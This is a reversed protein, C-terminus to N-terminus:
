NSSKNNSDEDSAGTDPLENAVRKFVIKGNSQRSYPLTDETWPNGQDDMGVPHDMRQEFSSKKNEEKM